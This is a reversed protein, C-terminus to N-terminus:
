KGHHYIVMADKIEPTTIALTRPRLVPGVLLLPCKGWPRSVHAWGTKDLRTTSSGRQWNIPLQM